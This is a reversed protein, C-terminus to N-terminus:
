LRTIGLGPLDNPLISGNTANVGDFKDNKILLNGDLDVWDALSSLHAAASIACSTETMCGLMVKLNLKRALTIMKYAEAIGSSKMLKINIGSYADKIKSLDSLRQVAEDAIIPIPCRESLWATDTKNSKHFPQEILIVNQTHLWLIFDLTEERNTWGQNVDAFIPKATASRITDIIKKDTNTGLKVKIYSFNEAEMLKLLIMEPSDIGITYSTHMERKTIGYMKYVPLNKIKGVLDHLAIDISAKAANNGPALNDISSLVAPLDTIDNYQSLNIQKLFSHVSEQTEPLYPPLSAEGYGILGEYEVEVLVIPTTKRSNASITFPHKLDLSYPYWSLKIKNM